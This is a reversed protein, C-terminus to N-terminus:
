TLFPSPTGAHTVHLADRARTCAVFLLCRERRRDQEHAILDEDRPTLAAAAPVTAADVGAVLVCRYEMGKMKHMTRVRVGKPARTPIGADTLAAQIDKGKATTRAAIGISHPEVGAELWARVKAVIGDLEAQWHPYAAVVPRRGHMPSHYGVLTDEEDDLGQAPQGALMRVAWGLIEQTTRYSVTLRSSRGRVEIGLKALSVKNAYIRQNPDSVIFLDDLGRAVARRLLRWQAPHLDQGEDVLVHRYPPAPRRALLEAATVAVQLHTRQGLRNLQDLVGSIATWAQERTPSHSRVPKGRGPRECALYSDRDPLGQALIVQEWESRLFSASLAGGTAQRAEQWLKAEAPPDIIEVRRDEANRVVQNAFADVNIVDIRERVMEDEVLVALLEQLSDALGRNFTTILIDKSTGPPLRKALFAARHLATVTKGTGAGGSVLVPGRYSPHYAVRRQRPHLFTRWVAFPHALIDALENPGSVGVYRDPTREIAAGLDDQDVKEPPEAEALYASIEQWAEDPSMGTALAVLANYQPEPLLGSLALLHRESTLLRVVPLIDGDIGLRVLDSDNVGDFLRTTTTGAAQALAPQFGELASQDRVELVGLAQNVTFKKSTAFANAKDHPLVTLLLYEDGREPALVVGRWFDTIRITRIRPDKSNKLKELHLGAHTHEAFLEFTKDVARQVNKELKAYGPLFEKDIYLRPM